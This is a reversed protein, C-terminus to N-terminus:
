VLVPAEGYMDMGGYVLQVTGGYMLLDLRLPLPVRQKEIMVLGLRVLLPMRLKKTM